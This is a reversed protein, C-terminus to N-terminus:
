NPVRFTRFGSGGSDPAGFYENNNIGPTGQPGQPGQAGQPGQPGQAGQPGQPGQPGSVPPVLFAQVSLNVGYSSTLPWAALTGTPFSTGVTGRQWCYEFRGNSIPVWVSLPSRAGNNSPPNVTIAQGVYHGCTVNTKGPARFAITLNATGIEQGVTILLLGGLNVAFADSPVGLASVDVSIWQGPPPSAATTNIFLVNAVGPWDTRSGINGQNWNQPQANTPALLLAFLSYFFLTIMKM